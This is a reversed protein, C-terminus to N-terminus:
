PLRAHATEQILAATRLMAASIAHNVPIIVAQAIALSVALVCAYFTLTQM